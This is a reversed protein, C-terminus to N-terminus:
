SSHDIRQYTGEREQMLAPVGQIHLQQALRQGEIIRQEAQQQIASNQLFGVAQSLGNTTLIEALVAFDTNDKGDRYRALQFATLMELEREPAVEQVATLAVILNFSDFDTAQNLINQRYNESFVQGTLQAIRQDNSWAYEAFEANMKRGSHAFLGTPILEIQHNEALRHIGKSAGYCWGCLPDFLYLIKSM